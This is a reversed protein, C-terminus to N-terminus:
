IPNSCPLQRCIRLRKRVCPKKRVFCLRQDSHQDRFQGIRGGGDYASIMALCHRPNFSLTRGGSGQISQWRGTGPPNRRPGASVRAIPLRANGTPSSCCPGSRRDGITGSVRAALFTDDSQGAWRGKGGCLYAPASCRKSARCWRSRAVVIHGPMANWDRCRVANM